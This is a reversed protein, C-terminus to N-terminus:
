NAKRGDFPGGFLKSLACYNLAGSAMLVVGIVGVVWTTLNFAWLCVLLLGPVIRLARGLPSAMFKAFKM